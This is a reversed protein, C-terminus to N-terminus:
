PKLANAAPLQEAPLLRAIMSTRAPSNLAFCVAQLAVVTYLLGVHEVGAFTVAALVLSLPVVRHRQVAGTQAPRRHRRRSRQVARPAGAPRTLLSRDARRLFASGTIDYVQLSVALATM